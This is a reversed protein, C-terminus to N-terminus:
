SNPLNAEYSRVVKRYKEHIMGRDFDNFAQLMDQQEDSDLYAMCPIFFHKDELEIHRTYFGSLDDLIERIDTLVEADGNLYAENAEALSGVTRRGYKHQEILQAMVSKLDDTLGKAHLKRFLIDEEKGHHTRDAYTRFFDVANDIFVNSVLNDLNERRAEEEALKIMREILRHEIM